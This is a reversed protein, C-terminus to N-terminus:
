RIQAPRSLRRHSRRFARAHPRPSIRLHAGGARCLEFHFNSRARFNL